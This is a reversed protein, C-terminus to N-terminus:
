ILITNTDQIQGNSNKPLKNTPLAFLHYEWDFSRLKHPNQVHIQIGQCQEGKFKQFGPQFSTQRFFVTEQDAGLLERVREAYQKPDRIYPAGIFLFPLCTGRGESLNTGELLVTGPYTYACEATPLNPSPLIWNRALEHWFKDPQWGQMQVVELECGIDKNFLLAAEGMTLGHRMPIPFEGVFSKVTKDLCPGEIQIGGIPNPRDLIVVKKGYKKAARLCAAMSYKYTYVRTGTIQLDVVLTDLGRLMAETPERTEGYLSYIPLGTAAHTAHDTEIMNDQVTSVFGHQPGFLAKLKPGLAKALIQWSDEFTATISAQNSLLGVAGWKHAVTPNSKIIDLAVQLAAGTTHTLSQYEHHTTGLM